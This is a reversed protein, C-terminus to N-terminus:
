ESRHRRRIMAAGVITLLMVATGPEPVVFISSDDIMYSLSAQPGSPYGISYFHYNLRDMLPGTGSQFNTTDWFEDAATLPDTGPSAYYSGIGNEDFGIGLTWWGGYAGIVPSGLSQDSVLGNGLRVSFFPRNFGTSYNVWISPYYRGDLTQGPTTSIAELRHGISQSSTGTAAFDAMSPLYIQTILLPQDSRMPYGEVRLINYQQFVMDEQSSNGDDGFDTSGIQLSKSQGALGGAPSATTQLTEPAGRSSGYWKGNSSTGGSESHNFQWIPDEFNDSISADRAKGDTLVQAIAPTMHLVCIALGVLPNVSRLNTM